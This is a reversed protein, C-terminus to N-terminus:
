CRHPAVCSAPFNRVEIPNGWSSNTESVVFARPPRGIPAVGSSGTWWHGGAACDGAATCSVSDTGAAAFCVRVCDVGTSPWESSNLSTTGPVEIANGWIGNTEGVVFAAGYHHGNIDGRQEYAGGAACEGAAACSISFVSALRSLTGMGPVEIASGWTGNSEGVVFARVHHGDNYSGGAACEGVAPCSVSDAGADDGANLTGTGPVEIANGWIGNSESVVFAQGRGLAQGPFGDSYYGGAACDGAAACSISMVEGDGGRNLTATGPVEIAKGWRGNTESVVFAQQGLGFRGDKYYGGAACDGAGACSISNVEASGGRNLTATGPVEIANGWSGNTESVVFAQQRLGFRGDTYYGGAACDGAAACSISDVEAHGGRNLTALGPVEIANGWSGNTESVVFGHQRYRSDTYYGGAACEGDAACSISNVWANGWSNLTATGPVEIPTGWRGNTEDVVFAQWLGNKVIYYGGAACDGAAHCSIANLIACDRAAACSISDVGLIGTSNLPAAGCGSAVGTLIGCALVISGTLGFRSV